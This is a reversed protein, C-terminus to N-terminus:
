GYFRDAFNASTNQPVQIPFKLQKNYRYVERRAFREFADERKEHYHPMYCGASALDINTGHKSDYLSDFATRCKIATEEDTLQILGSTILDEITLIKLKM